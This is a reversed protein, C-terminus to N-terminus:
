KRQQQEQQASEGGGNRPQFLVAQQPRPRAIQQAIGKQAQHHRQAQDADPGVKRLRVKVDRV